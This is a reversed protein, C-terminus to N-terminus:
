FLKKLEAATPESKADRLVWQETHRLTQGPKLTVAPGMTEMEAMFCNTGTYLAVNTGLPYAANPEYPARKAFVLKQAPVYMGLVGADAKLMRKSEVGGPELHFAETSLSFQPDDFVKAGQNDGWKRIAVITAYDWASGDGLPVTYRTGKSPLTSTVAWVGGSWLMSSRNTVFHELEVRDASLARITIGRQTLLVPDVPATVTFSNSDLEVAAPKHDPSYTEEAEDAGPRSIWLRHGGMLDWQKRVYKGPQWLLLNEGGNRGWFAIRPGKGHVAVLRVQPTTLEVAALGRFKTRQLVPKFKM